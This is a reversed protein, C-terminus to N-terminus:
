LLTVAWFADLVLILMSGVVVAQTTSRGVAAAGGMTHFGFFCGMLTVAFGFSAAKILSYYVDFPVFFLRLGRIFEATSMDLLNIASIWGGLIGVANAFAVVVPFMLIGALVRPVVLYAVPDYGLTELADIQETVRMSGIEAAINAGVRGALALGTLVPGLELIVTKGVLTGVFYLPIAGTFTYSAQLALVIGTFAAIFLAIPLSEVGIRAMLPVLLRGWTGVQGLARGMGGAFSGLRGFWASLEMASRGVWVVPGTLAHRM